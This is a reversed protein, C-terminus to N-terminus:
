RHFFRTLSAVFVAFPLVVGVWHPWDRVRGRVRDNIIAILLLLLPLYFVLFLVDYRVFLFRLIFGLVLISAGALFYVRWSVSDSIKWAAFLNLALWTLQIGWSYAVLSVMSLHQDGLLTIAVALIFAIGTTHTLLLWHGPLSFFAYGRRRWVFGFLVLTVSISTSLIYMAGWTSAFLQELGTQKAHRLQQGVALLVAAVATIAMIHHIRLPPSTPRAQAANVDESAPGAPSPEGPGLEFDSIASNM